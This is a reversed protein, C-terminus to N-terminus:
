NELNGIRYDVNKQQQQKAVQPKILPLIILNYPLKVMQKDSNDCKRQWGCLKEGNFNFLNSYNSNQKFFFLQCRYASISTGM